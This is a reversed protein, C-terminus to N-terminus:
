NAQSMDSQQRTWIDSYSSSRDALADETSLPYRGSRSGKKM